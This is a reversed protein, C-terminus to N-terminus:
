FRTYFGTYQTFTTQLMDAYVDYVSDIPTVDYRGRKFFHIDYTDRGTLEIEIYNIKNKAGSGIKFGLVQRQKDFSFQKAGTMAIFQNGGLQQIIVKGTNNEYLRRPRFKNVRTTESITNRKRKNSCGCPNQNNTYCM